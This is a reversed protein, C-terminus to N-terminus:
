FAHWEQRSSRVLEDRIKEFVAEFKNRAALKSESAPMTSPVSFHRVVVRFVIVQSGISIFGHLRRYNARQDVPYKKRLRLFPQYNDVKAQVVDLNLCENSM